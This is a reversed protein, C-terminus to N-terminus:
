LQGIASDGLLTHGVISDNRALPDEVRARSRAPQNGHAASAARVTSSAEDPDRARQRYGDHWQALGVDCSWREDASKRRDLAAVRCDGVGGSQRRSGREKTRRPERNSSELVLIEAKPLAAAMDRAGSSTVRSYRLDVLRLKKLGSLKVLGANTVKTRYLSLEELESMNKLVDIGEDTVNASQLNLRRLKTLGALSALGPM